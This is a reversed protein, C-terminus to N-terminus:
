QGKLFALLDAVQQATLADLLGAPMISGPLPSLSSVDSRRITESAGGPMRLTVNDSTEGTVLGTLSLGSRLSVTYGTYAPAVEADPNAIHFAIMEKTQRRMDYLDPGLVSGTQELRHCASCLGGFVAKGARADFPLKIAEAIKTDTEAKTSSAVALAKAVRDALTPPPNKLLNQRMRSPISSPKVVGSEVLELIGEPKAPNSTLATLVVERLEPSLSTWVLPTVAREAAQLPDIAALTRFAAARIDNPHLANWVNLLAPISESANAKAALAFLTKASNSSIKGRQIFSLAKTAAKTIVEHNTATKIESVLAAELAIPGASLLPLVSLLKESTEFSKATLTLLEMAGDPEDQILPWLAELFADERGHIQSVVLARVWRDSVGERALSALRSVELTERTAAAGSLAAFASGAQSVPQARHPSEPSSRGSSRVRWIRGRDRGTVFDTRKRVEEPLYDPHEITSRYMDAIYLCGDPGTTLFVPRFWDDTSAVPEHDALLPDANFSAGDPTLRDAHVLNGTPDCSFVAHQYRKPLGTGQFIHVGCAASFSGTHSDATTINSSVPHLRVGGKDGAFGSKVSRPNCDQVTETFALRPNLGLWEPQLVVHQVPIRNMCIFRRGESDFTQGYQSKGGAHRVERSDPHIRIDGTMKFAPEKPHTPRTLEGGVLGAALYIWGDPGLMPKNVRLQTSKTTDFGTIWVERQDAKGDGDTDKLFLLDPSATVLIGGRFPLVGNPFALGSAFVTRQDMVGDKNTDELLVINGLGSGDSPYGNNEAVFLRHPGDFALACPSSVLPEAAVLEVSLDSATIFCHLADAPSLANGALLSLPFTLALRLCTAALSRLAHPSM